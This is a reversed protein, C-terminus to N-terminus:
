GPSPLRACDIIVLHREDWGPVEVRQVECAAAAPGLAALEVTPYQGKLAYLRASATRRGCTAELLFALDGVAQSVIADPLERPTWDEVRCNAVEVLPLALEIRAQQLFRARRARPEVLTVSREPALIALVLGPLGNGSGLDALCSGEILPSVALADAVFRRCFTAVSRAGTLNATRNWHIVLEAYRALRERATDSLPLGLGEALSALLAQISSAHEM